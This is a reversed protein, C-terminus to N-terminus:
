LLVAQQMTGPKLWLAEIRDAASDAHAAKLVMTWDDLLEAYLASPYGSILVHGRRSRRTPEDAAAPKRAM